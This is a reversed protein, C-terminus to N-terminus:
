RYITYKKPAAKGGRWFFQDSCIYIKYIYGSPIGGEFDSLVTDLSQRYIVANDWERGIRRQLLFLLIM